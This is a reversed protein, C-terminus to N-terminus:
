EPYFDKTLYTIQFIERDIVQNKMRKVSYRRLLTEKLSSTFNLQKKKEPIHMSIIDLFEKDIGTTEV